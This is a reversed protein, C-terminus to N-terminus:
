EMIKTMLTRRYILRRFYMYGQIHKTGTKPAKEFRIIMYEIEMEDILKELTSLTEETYNNITFCWRRGQPNIM